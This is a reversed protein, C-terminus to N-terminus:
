TVLVIIEHAPEISAKNIFLLLGVYINPLRGCYVVGLILNCFIFYFRGRCIMFLHDFPSSDHTYM